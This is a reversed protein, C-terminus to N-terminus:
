CKVTGHNLILLLRAFNSWYTTFRHAETIYTAEKIASKVSRNGYTGYVIIRPTLKIPQGGYIACFLLEIHKRNLM